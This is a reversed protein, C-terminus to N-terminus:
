SAGPYQRYGPLRIRRASMRRDIILEGKPADEATAGPAEQEPFPIVAAEYPGDDTYQRRTEDFLRYDTIADFNMPHYLIEATTATNGMSRRVISKRAEKFGDVDALRIINESAKIILDARRREQSRERSEQFREQMSRFAKM